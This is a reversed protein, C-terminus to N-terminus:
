GFLALLSAILVAWFMGSALIVLMIPHVRLEPTPQNRNAATRYPAPYSPRYASLAHRVQM